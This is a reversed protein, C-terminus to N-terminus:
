SSGGHGTAAWGSAQSGIVWVVVDADPRYKAILERLTRAREESTTAISCRKGVPLREIMTLTKGFNSGM